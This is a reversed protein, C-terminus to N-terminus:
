TFCTLRYKKCSSTPSRSVTPKMMHDDGRSTKRPWGSKQKYSYNVYLEFNNITSHVATKSCAMQVAIKRESYGEEHLIVVRARQIDSLSAKRGM